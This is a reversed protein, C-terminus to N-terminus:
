KTPRQTIPARLRMLFVPGDQEADDDPEADGDDELDESGADFTLLQELLWDDVAFTIVTRGAADSGAIDARELLHHPITRAQSGPDLLLAIIMM